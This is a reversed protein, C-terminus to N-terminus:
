VFIGNEVFGNATTTTNRDNIQDTAANTVTQGKKQNLATRLVHNVLLLKLNCLFFCAVHHKMFKADHNRM